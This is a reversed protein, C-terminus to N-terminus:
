VNLFPTSNDEVEEEQHDALVELHGEAVMTEEQHDVVTQHHTLLLHLTIIQPHIHGKKDIAKDVRVLHTQTKIILDEEEFFRLILEQTLTLAM